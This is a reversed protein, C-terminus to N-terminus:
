ILSKLYPIMLKEVRNVKAYELLLHVDVNPQTLYEKLAELAVDEGIKKRFKFCDAVTKERSYIRVKVGDIVHENAGVSHLSPSIWCVEIPPNEIRPRGMNNPLAVYVNYPIQTTMEYFYLASILCIISKPILMSVQVLDPNGLPSSDALRYLGRGEKILEGSEHMEYVIHKPVGFKIADTVRLIGNHRSFIKKFPGYEEATM